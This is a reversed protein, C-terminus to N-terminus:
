DEFAPRTDRSPYWYVEDDIQRVDLRTLGIRGCRGTVCRGDLPDYVAGHISCIIFRRESDLFEGPQWDMEVPVHACRNLYGVVVGDFRLAFASVPEGHHLVEFTHAKGREALDAAACLRQPAIDDAPSDNM